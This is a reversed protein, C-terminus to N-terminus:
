GSRGLTEERRQLFFQHMVFNIFSPRFSARAQELGDFHEVVAFPQMRRQAVQRGGVELGDGSLWGSEPGSPRPPFTKGRRPSKGGRIGLGAAQNEPIRNGTLGGTGSKVWCVRDKSLDLRAIAWSIDTERCSGLAPMNACKSRPTCYALRTNDVSASSERFQTCRSGSHCSCHCREPQLNRQSASSPTPADRLKHFETSHERSGTRTCRLTKCGRFSQPKDKPQSDGSSKPATMQSPPM